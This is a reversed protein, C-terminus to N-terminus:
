PRRGDGEGSNLEELFANAEEESSFKKVVKITKKKPKKQDFPEKAKKAAKKAAEFDKLAQKDLLATDAKLQKLKSAELVRHQDGVLVVVFSTKSGKPSKAAKPKAKGRMKDRAAEAAEKNPFGSKIVKVKPRAPKEATFEQKNKAAAKRDAAYRKSAEKWEADLQKKLDKAEPAPIVRFDGNM